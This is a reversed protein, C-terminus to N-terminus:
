EKILKETLQSGDKLSVELYYTGAPLSAVNIKSGELVLNNIKRGTADYIVVSKVKEVNKFTVSEKAPNPYLVIGANEKVTETTGLSASRTLTAYGRNGGHYTLSTSSGKAFFINLTSASNPIAFDGAGGTLSRTAVITRIGSAVNNSVETWDQAADATPTNGIGSFSYDRTSAVNYIFGDSGNAMGSQGFGIGLYTTDSGTLTITVQSPTTDLKVTMGTSGLNVTGTTFQASAIGAILLSLSLLIKKM